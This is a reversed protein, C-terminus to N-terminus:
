IYQYSNLNISVRWSATDFPKDRYYHIVKDEFWWFHSPFVSFLFRSGTFFQNSIM